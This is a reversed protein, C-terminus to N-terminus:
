KKKLFISSISKRLYRYHIIKNNAKTLYHALQIVKYTGM